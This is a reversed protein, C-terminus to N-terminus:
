VTLSAPRDGFGCDYVRSTCYRSASDSKERKFSFVEQCSYPVYAIIYSVLPSPFLITLLVLLLGTVRRDFSWCGFAHASYATLSKKTETIKSFLIGKRAPRRCPRRLIRWLPPYQVGLAFLRRFVLQVSSSGPPRMLCDSTRTAVATKRPM